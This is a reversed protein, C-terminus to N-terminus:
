SAKATRRFRFTCLGRTPNISQEQELEPTLGTCRAELSYRDKTMADTRHTRHVTLSNIILVDGVELEPAWFCDEPFLAHVQEYELRIKDYNIEKHEDYQPPKIIQRIPSRVVELGPADKGCDVLPIWCNIIPIGGMFIADQHYPVPPNPGKKVKQRRPHCNNLFFGLDSQFYQGLLLMMEQSKMLGEELVYGPSPWKAEEAVAAALVHGSYFVLNKQEEPLTGDEHQKDWKEYVKKVTEFVKELQKKPIIDRIVMCNQETMAKAFLAPNIEDRHFDPLPMSM